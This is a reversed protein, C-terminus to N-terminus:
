KKNKLFHFFGYYTNMHLDVPCLGTAQGSIFLKKSFSFGVSTLKGLKLLLYHYQCGPAKAPLFPAGRAQTSEWLGQIPVLSVQRGRNRDGPM